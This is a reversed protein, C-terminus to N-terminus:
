DDKRRLVPIHPNSWDVVLIAPAIWKRAWRDAEYQLSYKLQPTIFGISQRIFKTNLDGLEQLALDWSQECNHCEYNGACFVTRDGCSDCGLLDTILM